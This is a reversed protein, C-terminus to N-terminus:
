PAQFAAVGADLWDIFKQVDPDYAAHGNLPKLDNHGLIVYYPQANANFNAAQFDSWKNGVTRVKKGTTPSVYKLAEPLETREDVYLSVLVVNERLRRAVEPNRWVEEEMKRCNVCGWGTFDIMLPKNQQKAYALAKDFDNFCPLDLPCHAEADLKPADSNGGGGTYAGGPQEAYFDPPPFGAVLKVPAGFIGPLLYFGLVAFVTAVLMRFVGIHQVPSDNPMRFVGLLYLTTLFAIAVWIALFMERELWHNQWVMDATSLFKLAFALELFGLVVKVTNLWGGSKPLANLWGPFAAFLMFPVSLALSFGFMGMAPGIWEGTSAASVLLSGILPGTCSFSVLSLTFAMFFIGAYGGKNSAEDAKNVWSSPLTIEFAGFFSIAFVVFLAFFVLNFWPNTALENLASSGFLVTILLGLAVYIFNISLGYVLAKRVGEAKTKSQKTFFSVTLPIMPFICPMFLALLGAGAGALFIGWPTGPTVSDDAGAADTVAPAGADTGADSAPATDNTSTSADEPAAAEGSAVTAAPSGAVASAGAAVPEVRFNLDRFDPPLCMEDNCVMYEVTAAVAFPKSAPDFSIKQRFAAKNAFFKLEMGFNKDFQSIPKGEATKGVTKFGKVGKPAPFSFTTPVPGNPDVFQSYLHWGGELTAEAVLVAEGPREPAQEVRTKWKVPDLIQAQLPTQAAAWLFVAFIRIWNM